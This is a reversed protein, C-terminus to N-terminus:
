RGARHPRDPRSTSAGPGSVAPGSGDTAWRELIRQVYKWSRRNYGIAQRFAEEIWDGPYRREAESLEEVLLPTLVGINQEYLQFINPRDVRRGTEEPLVVQGVDIRGSELDGIAQRGRATNLFLCDEPTGALEITRRLALGREVVREIAREFAAEGGLGSAVVPDRELERRTVFPLRGKKKAVLWFLYLSLKLEDVDDIAGLVETIFLSPLVTAALRGDPFGSFTTPRARTAV